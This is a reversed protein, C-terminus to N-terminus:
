GNIKNTLTELQDLEEKTLKSLDMPKNLSQGKTTVDMSSKSRGHARDLMSEIMFNGFKGVLQKAVIRLLMPAAKDKTYAKIKSEPLNLLLEYAEAVQTSTVREFGEKKLEENITGLLKRPPGNRNIRADGKVFPKRNKLNDSVVKAM